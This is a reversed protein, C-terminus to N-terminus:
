KKPKIPAKAKTKTKTKAKGSEMGALTSFHMAAFHWKGASKVVTLSINLPFAIKKGDAKGNVEGTAVLWGMESSLGGFKFNYHFDQEGKDFGEFFHKYADEIEKTGSWLEGPGSGVIVAKPGYTAMVGKLDHNTFADDHAKLLARVDKLEPNDSEDANATSALAAVATVGALGTMISTRRNM